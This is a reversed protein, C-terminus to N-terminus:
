SYDGNITEIKPEGDTNLLYVSKFNGRKMDEDTTWPGLVDSKGWDEMLSVYFPSPKRTERIREIIRKIM